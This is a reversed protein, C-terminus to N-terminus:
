PLDSGIQKGQYTFLLGKTKAMSLAIDALTSLLVKHSKKDKMRDAPIHRVGHAIEDTLAGRVETIRTATAIIM